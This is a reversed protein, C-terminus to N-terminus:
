ALLAATLAGLAGVLAGASTLVAARAWGVAAEIRPETRRSVGVVERLVGLQEFVAELAAAQRASERRSEDVLTGLHTLEARHAELATAQGRLGDRHAELLATTRAVAEVLTALERAVDPAGRPAPSPDRPPRDDDLDTTVEVPAPQWKSAPRVPPSARRLRDLEAASEAIKVRMAALVAEERQQETVTEAVPNRM